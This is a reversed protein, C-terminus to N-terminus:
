AKPRQKAYNELWALQEPDLSPHVRTRADAVHAATARSAEVPDRM